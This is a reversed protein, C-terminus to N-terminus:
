KVALYLPVLVERPVLFSALLADSTIAVQDAMASLIAPPCDMDVGM